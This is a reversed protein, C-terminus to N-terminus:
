RRDRLEKLIPMLELREETLHEWLIGGPKPLTSGTRIVRIPTVILDIPVDFPEIPIDAVIQVEHVTTALPVRADVLGLQRLTAYELEAYGEGKGVREGSETVAVTGVVILDPRPLEDLGILTGWRFAGEITSAERRQADTLEEPEVRLFGERLRPTAMLLTKGQELVLQRVSRQPSDPNVKVLRATQFEPELAMRAAAQAAGKFNPIRGRVPFPFAAVQGRTLRNWTEERLAAKTRRADDM